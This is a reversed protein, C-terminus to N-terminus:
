ILLEWADAPGFLKTAGILLVLAVIVILIALLIRRGLSLEDLRRPWRWTM